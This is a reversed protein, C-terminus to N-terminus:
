VRHGEGRIDGVRRPQGSCTWRPAHVRRASMDRLDSAVLTSVCLVQGHSVCVKKPKEGHAGHMFSVSSGVLKYITAFVLGTLSLSLRISLCKRHIDTVSKWSNLVSTM